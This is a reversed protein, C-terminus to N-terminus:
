ATNNCIRPDPPIRRAQAGTADFFAAAVAPPVIANAAESGGGFGKDDRSIQVIQIEPMEEVTLIEYRTRNTSTVKGRDFTVQEKLAESLGMLTEVLSEWGAAAVAEGAVM